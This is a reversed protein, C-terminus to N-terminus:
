GCQGRRGYFEASIAAAVSPWMYVGNKASRRYSWYAGLNPSASTIPYMASRIPAPRAAYAWTSALSGLSTGTMGTFRYISLRRLLVLLDSWPSSQPLAQLVTGVDRWSIWFLNAALDARGAKVLRTASEDMDARPACPHQTLYVLAVDDTPFDEAEGILYRALQDGQARNPSVDGIGSKESHLKVEILLRAVTEAGKRLVVRVDPEGTRHVPWLEIEYSDFAPPSFVKRDCRALALIRELALANPFLRVADFLAATLVDESLSIKGKLALSLVALLYWSAQTCRRASLGCSV